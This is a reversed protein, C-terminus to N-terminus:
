SKLSTGLQLFSWNMNKGPILSLTFVGDLDSVTGIHTSLVKVSVGVIPNNQADIIKGSLIATQTNGLEPTLLVYVLGM